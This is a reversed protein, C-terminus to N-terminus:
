EDEELWALHIALTLMIEDILAARDGYKAVMPGHAGARRGSDDSPIADLHIEPRRRWTLAGRQRWVPGRFEATVVGAPREITISGTTLLLVAQERLLDAEEDLLDSVRRDFADESDPGGGHHGHDEEVGAIMVASM